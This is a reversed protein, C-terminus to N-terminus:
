PPNTTCASNSCSASSLRRGTAMSIVTPLATIATSCCAAQAAHQEVAIVAKGVTIEIAVPRRRLEALQEFEAHVVFGGQGRRRGDAPEAKNAIAEHVPQTVVGPAAAPAVDRRM